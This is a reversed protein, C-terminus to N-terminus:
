EIVSIGKIDVYKSLILLFSISPFHKPASQTIETIKAMNVPFMEERESAIAVPVSLLTLSTIDNTPMIANQFPKNFTKLSAPTIFISDRSKFGIKFLIKGLAKLSFTAVSSIVAQILAFISPIALAEVGSAILAIFFSLSLSLEPTALASIIVRAISPHQEKLRIGVVIIAIRADAFADM